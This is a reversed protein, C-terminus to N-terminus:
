GEYKATFLEKVYQIVNEDTHGFAGEITNRTYGLDFALKVFVGKLEMINMHPKFTYELVQIHESDILFYDDADRSYTLTDM